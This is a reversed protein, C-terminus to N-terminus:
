FESPQTGGPYKQYALTLNVHSKRAVLDEDLAVETEFLSRVAENKLRNRHELHWDGWDAVPMRELSRQARVFVELDSTIELSVALRKSTMRSNCSQESTSSLRALTRLLKREDARKSAKQNRLQWWTVVFGSALAAISAWAQVWTACDGEIAFSFCTQPM